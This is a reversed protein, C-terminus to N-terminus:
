RSTTEPTTYAIASKSPVQCGPGLMRPHSASVLARATEATLNDHSVLGDLFEMHSDPDAGDHPQHVSDTTADFELPAIGYLRCMLAGFVPTAKVWRGHLYVETLWHLFIEGGVLDHLEPSSLHNRVRGSVVRAPVGVARCGAVFLISKHLCFGTGNDATSSARLGHDSLDTGFVEYHIKDRVAYYLAVVRATDTDAGTTAAAVFRQLSPHELDFLDTASLHTSSM